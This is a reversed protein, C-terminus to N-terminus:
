QVNASELHRWSRGRVVDWICFYSVNYRCALDNITKRSRTAPLSRIAVMQSETLRAHGSTEGRSQRQKRTKDQMNDDNTGVFLHKPNCCPPNDCTHLVYMGDPIDGVFHEYATRHAKRLVLKDDRRLVLTGYGDADTAGAWEWCDDSGSRDIARALQIVVPIRRKGAM